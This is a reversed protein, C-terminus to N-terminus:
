CSRVIRLHIAFVANYQLILSWNCIWTLIDVYVILLLHKISTLWFLYKWLTKRCANLFSAFTVVNPKILVEYTKQFLWLIYHHHHRERRDKLTDGDNEADLQQFMKLIQDDETKNQFADDIFMSSSKESPYEISQSSGHVGYESTPSQRFADIVSNFTM